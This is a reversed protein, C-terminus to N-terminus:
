AVETAPLHDTSTAAFVATAGAVVRAVTRDAAIELLTPATRVDYRNALEPHEEVLVKRVTDDPHAARLREVAPDCTACYRTAFVLWTRGPGALSEPLAPLGVPAHQSLSRLRRSRLWGLVVVATVVVGVVLLRTM